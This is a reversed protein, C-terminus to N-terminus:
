TMGLAFEGVGAVDEGQHDSVFIVCGFVGCRVELLFEGYGERGAGGEAVHRRELATGGVPVSASIGANRIKL